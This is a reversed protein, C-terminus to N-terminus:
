AIFRKIHAADPDTDTLTIGDTGSAGQNAKAEEYAQRLTEMKTIPVYLGWFRHQKDSKAKLYLKRRLDQLSIVPKTM